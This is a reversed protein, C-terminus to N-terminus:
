AAGVLEQSRLAIGVAVRTGDIDTVPVGADGFLTSLRPAIERPLLAEIGKARAWARYAEGIEAVPTRRDRSWKFETLNHIPEPAIDLAEDRIAFPAVISVECVIRPCPLPKTPAIHMLDSLHVNRLVVRARTPM